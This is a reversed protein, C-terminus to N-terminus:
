IMGAEILLIIENMLRDEGEADFESKLNSGFLRALTQWLVASFTGRLEKVIDYSTHGLERDILKLLIRGQTITLGKLEDEYEDKIEREVQKIFEKQEKETELALLEISLSDYKYKAMQSYPYVKKVNYVLRRYKRLHRNYRNKKGTFVYVPDISSCYLTDGDKVKAELLYGADLDYQAYLLTCSFLFSVLIIAKRLKM